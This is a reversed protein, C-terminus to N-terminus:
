ALPWWRPALLPTPPYQARSVPRSPSGRPSCPRRSARTATRAMCRQASMSARASKAKRRATPSSPSPTCSTSSPPTSRRLLARAARRRCSRRSLCDADATRPAARAPSHSENLGCQRELDEGDHIAPLTHTYKMKEAGLPHVGQLNANNSNVDRVGDASIHKPYWVSLM